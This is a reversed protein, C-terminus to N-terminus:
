FSLRAGFQTIRNGNRGTTYGFASPSSINTGPNGLNAHNFVNFAEMRVTLAFREALKTTKFLGSDLNYRGPGQLLNPASNGFTYAAPVAFAATNFWRDPNADAAKFDGILNARGSNWGTKNSTFTVSLFSGTAITGIGSLQWGSIVKSVPGKVGGLIKKGRGIPLDYNYNFVLYHRVYPGVNGRDLGMNTWTTALASNYDLGLARTFQYEAQFRLGSRFRRIV